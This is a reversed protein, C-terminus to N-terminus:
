EFHKLVTSAAAAALFSSSRKCQPTAM